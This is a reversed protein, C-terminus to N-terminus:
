KKHLSQDIVVGVGIGMVIGTVLGGAVYWWSPAKALEQCEKNAQAVALCMDARLFCGLEPAVDGQKFIYVADESGGAAVRPADEPMVDETKGRLLADDKPLESLLLTVVLAHAIM